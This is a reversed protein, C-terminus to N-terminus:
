PVEGESRIARDSGIKAFGDCGSLDQRRRCRIKACHTQGLCLWRMDQVEIELRHWELM